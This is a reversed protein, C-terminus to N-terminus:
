MIVLKRPATQKPVFEGNKENRQFVILSCVDASENRHDAISFLLCILMQELSYRYKHRRMWRAFRDAGFVALLNISKHLSNRETHKLM